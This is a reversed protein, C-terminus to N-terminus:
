LTLLLYVMSKLIREIIPPKHITPMSSNRTIVAITKKDNLQPNAHIEEHKHHHDHHHHDHAHPHDHHTHGDHDHSHTHTHGDHSHEHAHASWQSPTISCGCDKCM